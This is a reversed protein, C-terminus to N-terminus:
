VEVADDLRELDREQFRRDWRVRRDPDKPTQFRYVLRAAAPLDTAAALRELAEIASRADPEVQLARQWAAWAALPRQLQFHAWGQHVLAHSPARGTDSDHPTMSTM